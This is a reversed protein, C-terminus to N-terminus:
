LTLILVALAVCLFQRPFSLLVNLSVDTRRLHAWSFFPIFLHSLPKETLCCKSPYTPPCQGPQTQSLVYEGVNKWVRRCQGVHDWVRGCQGVRECQGVHDWWSVGQGVRDRGTGGKGVRDWERGCQGVSDLVEVSEQVRRCEGM